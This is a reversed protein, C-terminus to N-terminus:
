PRNIIAQMMAPLEKKVILSFQTLFAKAISPPPEIRSHSV